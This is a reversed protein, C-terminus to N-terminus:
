ARRRAVAISAIAIGLLLIAAGGLVQRARPFLGALGVDLPRALVITALHEGDGGFALPHEEVLWTTAGIDVDRIGPAHTAAIEAPLVGERSGDPAILGIQVGAGAALDGLLRAGAVLQVFLARPQEGVLKTRALVVFLGIRPSGGLLGSAVVAPDDGRVVAAATERVERYARALAPVTRVDDGWREPAASAYLLRGKGDAIAFDANRKANAFTAWDASVLNAHLTSLRTRDAAASDLGFDAQDRGSAEAMIPLVYSLDSLAVFTDTRLEVQRALQIGASEFGSRTVARERERAIEDAGFALVVVGLAAGAVAAVRRPVRARDKALAALLADM